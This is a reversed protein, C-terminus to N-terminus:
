EVDYGGKLKWFKVYYVVSIYFRSSVDAYGNYDTKLAWFFLEAPSTTTAADYRANAGLSKGKMYRTSMYRRFYNQNKNTKFTAFKSDRYDEATGAEPLAENTPMLMTPM